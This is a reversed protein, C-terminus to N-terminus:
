KLRFIRRRSCTRFKRLFAIMYEGKKEPPTPPQAAGRMRLCLERMMPKSPIRISQLLSARSSSFRPPPPPAAGGGGWQLCLTRMMPKSPIRIISALKGTKVFRLWGSKLRPPHECSPNPFSEYAKFCAPMAKLNPPPPPAGGGWKCVWISAHCAQVPNMHQSALQCPKFSRPTPRPAARGGGNAFLARM